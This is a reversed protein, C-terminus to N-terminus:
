PFLHVPFLILGVAKTVNHEKEWGEVHHRHQRAEAVAVSGPGTTTIHVTYDDIGQLLM